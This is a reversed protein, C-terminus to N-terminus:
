CVSSDLFLRDVRVEPLIEETLYEELIRISEITNKYRTYVVMKGVSM